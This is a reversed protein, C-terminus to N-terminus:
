GSAGPPPTSAQVTALADDLQRAAATLDRVGQDPAAAGPGVPGDVTSRVVRVAALLATVRSSGLDDHSTSLLSELSGELATVRPRAVNWGGLQEAPTAASRLAPLLDHSLWESEALAAAYGADWEQRTRRTRLWIVAAAVLGALALAAVLWWV